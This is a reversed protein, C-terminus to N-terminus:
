SEMELVNWLGLLLGMGVLTVQGRGMRAQM